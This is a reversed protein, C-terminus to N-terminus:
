SKSNNNRAQDSDISMQFHQFFTKNRTVHCAPNLPSLSVVAYIALPRQGSVWLVMKGDVPCLLCYPFMRRQTVETIATITPWKSHLCRHWMSYLTIKPKKQQCAMCSTKRGGKTGNFQFLSTYQQKTVRHDIDIAM